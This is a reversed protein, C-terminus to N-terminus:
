NLGKKVEDRIKSWWPTVYRRHVQSQIATKNNIDTPSGGMKVPEIEHIELGNNAYYPDAARMNRNFINASDRASNYEDGELFTWVKNQDPVPVYDDPYDSWDKIIFTGKEEDVIEVISSSGSEAVECAASEGKMLAGGIAVLLYDLIAAGTKRGLASDHDGNWAGKATRKAAELKEQPSFNRFYEVYTLPNAAANLGKQTVILLSLQYDAKSIIQVYELGQGVFGAYFGATATRQMEESDSNGKIAERIGVLSSPLTVPPGMIVDGYDLFIQGARNNLLGSEGNGKNGSGSNDKNNGNGNGSNGKWDDDTHLNYNLLFVRNGDGDYAAALLLEDGDHVAALRNEVTYEYTKNVKDTGIRGTESIRNGDADYTYTLSTTKKGNYLKESIM